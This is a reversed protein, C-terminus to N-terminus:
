AARRRRRLALLTAFFSPLLVAAAPSAVSCGAGGGLTADYGGPRGSDSGGADDTDFGTDIGADPTVVTGQVHRFGAVESWNSSVTGDNARARWFLAGFPLGLVEVSTEGEAGELIGLEVALLEDMRSDIAVQFDYTILQGEDADVANTVTLLVGGASDGVEIGRIPSRPTPPEPRRNPQLTEFTASAYLSTAAGDTAAVRWWYTQGDALEDTIVLRTSGDAGGALNEFTTVVDSFAEDRALGGLYRIPDNDPDTSNSWRLTLGEAAAIALGDTPAILAPISPADNQTNVAFTGIAFPGSRQPRGNDTARVRWTYTSGERLEVDLTLETTGDDGGAVDTVAFVSDGGVSTGEFVEFSYRLVEGEPDTANQIQLTPRLSTAFGVPALITPRSPAENSLNYVFTEAESWPGNVDVTVGRARWFYITDETFAGAGFSSQTTTGAGAAIEEASAIPEGLAEDDYIEMEYRVVDGDPDEVNNITLVVAGVTWTAREIPSVLEPAPPGSFVAPDTGAICEEAATLGDGDLDSTDDDADNTDLGAALECSDPAGGGDSDVFRTAVVWRQTARGGDDDTVSIEVTEDVFRSGNPTWRVAGAASVTLGAPGSVLAFTLTDAGVDSATANYVYEVGEDAFTPAASTFVPAVNRVRITATDSRTASTDVLERATGTITFTGNDTYTYTAPSGTATGGDGFTWSVAFLDGGPDSTVATVTVASGEDIDGYSGIEISPAVNRYLVEFSDTTVGGDDDRATVTVEYTGVLTYQHSANTGVIPASGDGMDWTVTIPDGVVDTPAVTFNTRQGQDVTRNPGVVMAPAVNRILLERVVVARLGSVNTVRVAVTRKTTVSDGDIGAANFNATATSADDFDGDNDLDWAFALTEDFPDFSRSADLVSVVGENVLAPSDLIAVPVRGVRVMQNGVYEVRDEVNDEDLDEATLQRSAFGNLATTGGDVFVTAAAGTNFAYRGAVPTEPSVVFSDGLDAGVAPGNGLPSPVTNPTRFIGTTDDSSEVIDRLQTRDVAEVGLASAFDPIAHLGGVFLLLGRNDTRWTALAVEVAPDLLLSEFETDIAIQQTTSNETAEVLAAGSDVFRAALGARIAAQGLVSDVPSDALVASQPNLVSTFQNRLLSVIDPIRDLNDDQATYRGPWFGNILVQGNQLQVTAGAGSGFSAVVSGLVGTPVGLDTTGGIAAARFTSPVPQPLSFVRGLHTANRSFPEAVAIREGAEAGLVSLVPAAGSLDAGSIVVGAGQALAVGLADATETTYVTTADGQTEVTVLTVEGSAIAAAFRSPSTELLPTYGANALAAAVVSKNGADSLDTLVLAPEASGRGFRIANEILEAVDALTDTDTDASSDFDSLRASSAILRGGAVGVVLPAGSDSSALVVFEADGVAPPAALTAGARPALAGLEEPLSFLSRGWLADAAVLSAVPEFVGSTDIGIGAPIAAVGSLIVPIGAARASAIRSWLSPDVVADESFEIFVARWETETLAADFAEPTNVVLTDVDYAASWATAAAPSEDSYVLLGPAQLDISVQILNTYLEIIDQTGDSDADTGRYVDSGLALYLVQDDRSTVVAANGSATALVVGGTSSFCFDGEDTRRSVGSLPSNVRDRYTFVDIGDAPTSVLPAYRADGTCSLELVARLDPSADLDHYAIVLSGGDDLHRDLATIIDPLLTLRAVDFVIVDFSRADVERQFGALNRTSVTELGLRGAASVAESGETTDDLVLVSQASAVVPVLSLVATAFALAFVRNM